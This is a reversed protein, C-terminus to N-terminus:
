AMCAEMAHKAHMTADLLADARPKAGANLFRSAAALNHLFVRPKARANLFRSAAAMYYLFFFIFSVIQTTIAITPLKWKHAISGPLLALFYDQYGVLIPSRLLRRPYYLGFKNTRCLPLCLISILRLLQTTLEAAGTFLSARLLPDTAVTKYYYCYCFLSLLLIFAATFIASSLLNLISYACPHIFPRQM